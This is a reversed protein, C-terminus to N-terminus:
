GLTHPYTSLFPFFMGLDLNIFPCSNEHTGPIYWPLDEDNNPSWRTRIIQQQKTVLDHRIRAAGHVTGRWATHFVAHLDRLFNFIFSSHLGDIGTSSINGFLIFDMDWLSIQVWMNVATNNVVALIHFCDLHGNVSLHIFFICYIYIYGISYSKAMFFLSIRGKYCHPHVWFVKHLHFLDSLSLCISCPIM